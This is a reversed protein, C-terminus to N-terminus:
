EDKPPNINNLPIYHTITGNDLRYEYKDSMLKYTGTKSYVFIPFSSKNVTYVFYFGPEKPVGKVWYLMNGKLPPRPQPEPTNCNPKNTVVSSHKGALDSREKEILRRIARQASSFSKYNRPHIVCSTPALDSNYLRTKVNFRIVGPRSQYITYTKDGVVRILCYGISDVQTIWKWKTM